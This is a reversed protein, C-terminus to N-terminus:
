SWRFHVSRGTPHSKTGNPPLMNEDRSTTGLTGWWINGVTSESFLQELPWREHSYKALNPLIGFFIFFLFINLVREHQLSNPLNHCNKKFFNPSKKKKEFVLSNMM